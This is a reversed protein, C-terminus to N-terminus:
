PLLGRLKVDQRVFCKKFLYTGRLPSIPRVEEIRFVHDDTQDFISIKVVADGVNPHFGETDLDEIKFLIHGQVLDQDGTYGTDQREWRGKWFNPQGSLVVADGFQDDGSREDYDPDMVAQSLPRVHVEVPNWRLPFGM